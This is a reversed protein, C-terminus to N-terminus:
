NKKEKKMVIVCTIALLDFRYLYIEVIIKQANIEVNRMVKQKVVGM